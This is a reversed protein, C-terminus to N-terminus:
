ACLWSRPLARFTDRCRCPPPQLNAELDMFRNAAVRTRLLSPLVCSFNPVLEKSKESAIESSFSINVCSIQWSSSYLEDVDFLIFMLANGNDDGFHCRILILLAERSTSATGVFHFHVGHTDGCLTVGVNRACIKGVRYCTCQWSVTLEPVFSFTFPETSEWYLSCRQM